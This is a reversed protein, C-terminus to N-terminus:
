RKSEALGRYRTTSNQRGSQHLAPTSIFAVRCSYSSPMRRWLPQADAGGGAMAAGADADPVPRAVAAVGLGVQAHGTGADAISQETRGGFSSGVIPWRLVDDVALMRQGVGYPRRGIAHSQRISYCTDCTQLSDRNCRNAGSDASGDIVGRCSIIVERCTQTRKPPLPWAAARPPPM